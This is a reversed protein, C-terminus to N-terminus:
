EEASSVVKTAVRSDSTWEEERGTFIAYFKPVYMLILTVLTVFSVVGQMVNFFSTPEPAPRDQLLTFYMLTVLLSGFVMTFVVMAVQRSDNAAAFFVNRTEWAWTTVIIIAITNIALIGGGNDFSITECYGFQEVTSTGDTKFIPPSIYIVRNTQGSLTAVLYYGVTFTVWGSTYMVLQKNNVQVMKMKQFIQKVRYLKSGICGFFLSFGLNFIFNKIICLNIMEPETMMEEDYAWLFVAFNCLVLGFVSLANMQYSAMRLIKRDGFFFSLGICVFCSTAVFIFLAMGKTQANTDSMYLWIPPDYANEVWDTWTTPHEKMWHCVIDHLPWDPYLKQLVFFETTVMQSIEINKMFNYVDTNVRKNFTESFILKWLMQPKCDCDITSGSTDEMTGLLAGNTTNYVRWCYDTAVPYQLRKVIGEELMNSLWADPEYWFFWFPKQLKIMLNVVDRYPNPFSSAVDGSYGWWEVWMPLDMNQIQIQVVNRDWSTKMLVVPFCGAARKTPTDCQPPIWQVFDADRNDPDPWTASTLTLAAQNSRQLEWATGVYNTGTAKSAADDIDAGMWASHTTFLFDKLTMTNADQYLASHAKLEEWYFPYFDEKIHSGTASWADNSEATKYAERWTSDEMYAGGFMGSLGDYGTSGLNQITGDRSYQKLELPAYDWLEVGIDRGKEGAMVKVWSYSGSSFLMTTDYGMCERLIIDILITAMNQSDWDLYMLRIGEPVSDLDLPRKIAPIIKHLELFEPSLCQPGSPVKDGESISNAVGFLCALGALLTSIM